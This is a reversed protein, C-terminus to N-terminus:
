KAGRNKKKKSISLRWSDLETTTTTPKGTPGPHPWPSGKAYRKATSEVVGLHKAITKWGTLIRGMHMPATSPPHLPEEDLPSVHSPSPLPGADGPFLEQHEAEMRAVEEAMIVLDSRSIKFPSTHKAAAFELESEFLVKELPGEVPYFFGERHHFHLWDVRVQRDGPALLGQIDLCLVAAYEKLFGSILAGSPLKLEKLKLGLEKMSIPRHVAYGEFWCSLVLSRSAGMNLLDEETKGWRKAVAALSYLKPEDRLTM